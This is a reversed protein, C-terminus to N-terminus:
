LFKEQIFSTSEGETEGTNLTVFLVECHTIILFNCLVYLLLVNSLTLLLVFTQLLLQYVFCLSQFQTQTM